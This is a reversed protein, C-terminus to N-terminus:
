EFRFKSARLYGEVSEVAIWRRLLREAVAGTTNSGAFPDLVVDGEETLLKIFFEPLARPFAASHNQNGCETALHLVNSPYALDRGVWNSIKKGFGSKVKSNDRRKDRAYSSSCRCM